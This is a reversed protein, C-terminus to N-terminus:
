KHKNIKTESFRESKSSLGVLSENSGEGDKHGQGKSIQNQIIVQFLM